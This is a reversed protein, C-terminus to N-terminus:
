PCTVLFMGSSFSWIHVVQNVSAAIVRKLYAWKTVCDEAFQGDQGYYLIDIEGVM